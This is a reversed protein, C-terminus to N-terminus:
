VVPVLVVAVQVDSAAAVGPILHRARRAAGTIGAVDQVHGAIVAADGPFDSLVAFAADYDLFRVGRGVGRDRDRGAAQLGDAEVHDGFSAGVGLLFQSLVLVEVFHRRGARDRVLHIVQAPGANPLDAEVLVLLRVVVGHGVLDDHLGRGGDGDAAH